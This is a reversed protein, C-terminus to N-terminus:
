RDTQRGDPFMYELDVWALVVVQTMLVIVHAIMHVIICVALNIELHFILSSNSLFYIHINLKFNLYVVKM